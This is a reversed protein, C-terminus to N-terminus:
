LGRLLLVIFVDNVDVAATTGEGASWAGAFTTMGCYPIRRIRATHAAAASGIPASAQITAGARLSLKAPVPFTGSTFARNTHKM